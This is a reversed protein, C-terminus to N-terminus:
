RVRIVLADRLLDVIGCPEGLAEKCWRVWFGGAADNFQVTKTEDARLSVSSSGLKLDDTFGTPRDGTFSKSHFQTLQLTVPNSSSNVLRINYSRVCGSLAWAIVVLVLAVNRM